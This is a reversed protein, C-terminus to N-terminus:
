VLAMAQFNFRNDHAPATATIADAAMASRGTAPTRVAPRAGQPGPPPPPTRTWPALTEVEAPETDPSSLDPIDVIVFSFNDEAGNSRTSKIINAACDALDVPAVAARLEADSLMGSVGDSCMLYTAPQLPLTTVHTQVPGPQGLSQTIVNTPHGNVDYVSDDHSLQQPQGGTISYVRSDGVNFAIIGGAVLCLGAITTGLGELGTEVGAGRVQDNAYAITAAM